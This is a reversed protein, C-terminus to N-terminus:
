GKGLDDPLFAVLSVEAALQSRGSVRKGNILVRRRGANPIEIEIRITSAGRRFEGRVVAAEAGTRVLAADPARRFSRLTALYGIAELVSTKGTGNDGVLVNVGDAPSFSVREYSRFDLAELWALYM